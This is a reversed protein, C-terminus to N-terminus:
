IRAILVDDHSEVVMKTENLSCDLIPYACLAIMPLSKILSGAKTEYSGLLNWDERPISESGSGVRLCHYGQTLVHEIYRGVNALARAEDFRGACLYWDEASLIQLQGACLYYLFHPIRREIKRHAEEVGMKECVLWLCAQGKELGARLFSGMLSLYDEESKYFQYFHKRPAVGHVLDFDLSM